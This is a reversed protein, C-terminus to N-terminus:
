QRKRRQFHLVATGIFQIGIGMLAFIRFVGPDSTICLAVIGVILFFLAGAALFVVSKPWQTM